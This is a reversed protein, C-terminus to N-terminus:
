LEWSSCLFILSLSSQCICVVYFFSYSLESDFWEEDRSCERANMAKGWTSTSRGSPLDPAVERGMSLVAKFDIRSKGLYSCVMMMEMSM